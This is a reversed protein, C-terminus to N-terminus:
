EIRFRPGFLHDYAAPIETKQTMWVCHFPIEARQKAGFQYYDADSIATATQTMQFLHQINDRESEKVDAKVFVSEFLDPHIQNCMGKLQEVCRGIDNDNMVIAILRNVENPISYTRHDNVSGDPNFSLGFFCRQLPLQIREKTLTEDIEIM